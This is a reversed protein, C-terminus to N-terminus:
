QFEISQTEMPASANELLRTENIVMSWVYGYGMEGEDDYVIFSGM